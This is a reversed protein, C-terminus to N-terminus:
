KIQYKAASIWGRYGLVDQFSKEELQIWNGPIEPKGSGFGTTWILWIIGGREINQNFDTLLDENTLLASGSFHPIQTSDVTGPTYLQPATAPHYLPFRTDNADRAVLASPNFGIGKLYYQYAYYKYTFYIFSSNVYVKDKPQINEFLYKTTGSIGPKGEPGINQWNRIFFAVSGIIFMIILINRFVKNKISNIFIAFIILYFIGAFVFYRDLYLSRKFSLAIALFFPILFSAFVLYGCINKERRLAIAFIILFVLLVIILLDNGIYINSSALMKWLTNPISYNDMKPIWYNEEVQGLQALFARLWPLFIIIIALWSLFAGRINQCKIWGNINARYKMIAWAIIFLAQAAVSFILYYHTHIALAASIGYLIWWKYLKIGEFTKFLFNNIKLSTNEREGTHIFAKVLLWSSLILLFTGLTYMRAEVAYQAQFPNLAIFLASLLALRENKFAEKVFLYAICITLIGFFASFLRLFFLSDGFIIDWIRLLLYYFSPHVDLSIRWIMEQLPYRILLASFAEDHWLSIATLNYLRLISGILIIIPLYLKAKNITM